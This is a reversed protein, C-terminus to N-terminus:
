WNTGGSTVEGAKKSQPNPITVTESCKDVLADLEADSLNTVDIGQTASWKRLAARGMIVPMAKDDRKAAPPKIGSAAQEDLMKYIADQSKCRLEGKIAETLPLGEASKYGTEEDVTVFDYLLASETSPVTMYGCEVTYARKEAPLNSVLHTATANDSVKVLHQLNRNSDFTAIAKQDLM